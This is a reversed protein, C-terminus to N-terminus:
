IHIYIYLKVEYIICFIYIWYCVNQKIQYNHLENLCWDFYFFIGRNMVSCIFFIKNLFYPRFFVKSRFNYFFIDCMESCLSCECKGQFHLAKPLSPLLPKSVIYENPWLIMFLKTDYIGFKLIRDWNNLIESIYLNIDNMCFKLIMKEVKKSFQFDWFDLTKYM